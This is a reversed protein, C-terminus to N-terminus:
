NMFGICKTAKCLCKLKNTDELPFKYDYTIEEGADIDRAAFIVIHKEEIYSSIDGDFDEDCEDCYNSSHLRKNTNRRSSYATAITATNTIKNTYTEKRDIKNNWKSKMKSASKSLTFMGPKPIINAVPKTLTTIIKAYANPECCHNIFRAMGGSRTADIIADKDQRFLYCSGVGEEEYLIERKDAVTQRIKQGIYEVIM